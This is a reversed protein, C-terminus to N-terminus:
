TSPMWRSRALRPPEAHSCSESRTASGALTGTSRRQLLQLRERGAAPDSLQTQVEVLLGAAARQIQARDHLVRWVTRVESRSSRASGWARVCELEGAFAQWRFAHMELGKSGLLVHRDRMAAERDNQRAGVLTHQDGFVLGNEIRQAGFPNRNGRGALLADATSAFGRDEFSRRIM